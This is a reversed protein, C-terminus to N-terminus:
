NSSNQKIYYFQCDLIMLKELQKLKLVAGAIEDAQM